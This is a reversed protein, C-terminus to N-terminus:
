YEYILIVQTVLVWLLLVNSVSFFAECLGKRDCSDGWYSNEQSWASKNLSDKFKTYISDIVLYKTDSKKQAVHKHSDDM